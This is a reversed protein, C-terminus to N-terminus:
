VARAAGDDRGPGGACLPQRYIASARVAEVNGARIRRGCRMSRGPPTWEAWGLREYFAQSGTLLLSLPMQRAAMEEVVRQMLASALGRRRWEPLTAVNSVGGAHIVAEGYRLPLDLLEVHSVIRGGARAVFGTGEPYPPDLVRAEFWARPTDDFVTVLLELVEEADAETRREITIQQM